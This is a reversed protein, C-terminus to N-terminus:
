RPDNSRPLADDAIMQKIAPKLNKATVTEVRMSQVRGGRQLVSVVPAENAIVAPRDKPREGPKTAHPGIKFKGGIYTEDIELIGNLKSSLPEQAM